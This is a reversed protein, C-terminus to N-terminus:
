LTLDVYKCFYRGLIFLIRNAMRARRAVIGVTCAVGSVM